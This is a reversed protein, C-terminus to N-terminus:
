AASDLRFLRYALGRIGDDCAGGEDVLAIVRDVQDRSRMPLSLVETLEPRTLYRDLYDYPDYREPQFVQDLLLRWTARTHTVRHARVCRRYDRVEPPLNAEHAETLWGYFAEVRRGYRAFTSRVDVAAGCRRLYAKAQSNFDMDAGALLAEVSLEFHTSRVADPQIGWRM